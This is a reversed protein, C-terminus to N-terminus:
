AGNRRTITQVEGRKPPSVDYVAVVTRDAGYASITNLTSVMGVSTAGSDKAIANLIGRVTKYLTGNLRYRPTLLDM